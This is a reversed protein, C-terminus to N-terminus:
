RLNDVWKTRRINDDVEKCTLRMFAIWHFRQDSHLLMNIIILPEREVDHQVPLGVVFGLTICAPLREPGIM